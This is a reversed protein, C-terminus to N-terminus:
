YPVYDLELACVQGLNEVSQVDVVVPLLEDKLDRLMEALVDDTANGHYIM